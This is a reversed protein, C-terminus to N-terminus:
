ERNSYGTPGYVKRRAIWSQRVSEARTTSPTRERSRRSDDSKWERTKNLLPVGRERLAAIWAVEVRHGESKSHLIAQVHFDLPETCEFLANTDPQNLHRWSRMYPNNTVGVYRIHGAPNRLVYLFHPTNEM